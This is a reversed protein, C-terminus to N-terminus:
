DTMIFGAWYFPEPYRARIQNRAREFAERKNGRTEILHQYFAVMFERTVRDSVRWLTMVLTQVGAKKFARQLGYLGEATVQGQGTQCASLVVLDTGSLDLTAIDHGTLIGDQVGEPLTQGQWAANGGALVLGSLYMADQYGQLYSYLRAQQSPVYFGHTALHLVRPSRGSLSLFSEESGSAGEYVSVQCHDARLLGAIQRVEEGSEPLATFTSDGRLMSRVARSSPLPYKRSEAQMEEASLDYLLGGYLAATCAGEAPRSLRTLERASSLRVFRYHDGLLRGDGAPLSEPALCYVQGSPVYYVTEGESVYPRIQDWLLHLLQPAKEPGYLLDPPTDLSLSELQRITFLPLLLPYKRDKRILYVAYVKKQQLSMFDVFDVLVEGDKLCNKVQRYDWDLFSTYDAYAKSHVALEHDLKQMRTQWLALTDRSFNERRQLSTIRDQLASIEAFLRRDEPTGEEQLIQDLSKETELLLGKSLLLANYCAETLDSERADLLDAYAPSNWLRESQENWFSEREVPSVYRWQSRIYELLVQVSRTFSQIGAKRRGRMVEGQALKELAASYEVSREGSTNRAIDAGIRYAECAKEPQEMRSWVTGLLSQVNVRGADAEGYHATLLSDAKQLLGYAEQWEKMFMKNLARTTYVLVRERPEVKESEAVKELYRYCYESEECRGLGDYILGQRIWATYDDRKRLHLSERGYEEARVLNGAKLYLNCMKSFYASLLVDRSLSGGVSLSKKYYYNAMEYNKQAVMRDGWEYYMSQTFLSDARIDWEYARDAYASRDNRSRALFLQMRAIDTQLSQSSSQLALTQAETLLCAAEDTNESSIAIKALLSLLFIQQDQNETARYLKLAEQYCQAATEAKMGVYADWGEQLWAEAMKEQLLRLQKPTAYPQAQELIHRVEAYDTREARMLGSALRYGCNLALSGAKDKEQETLPLALLTKCMEWAERYRKLSKYCNVARIMSMIHIRWEGENALKRTNKEVVLYNVLARSTYLLSDDRVAALILERIKYPPLNGSSGSEELAKKELLFAYRQEINQITGLITSQWSTGGSATCGDYARTLCLYTSDVKSRQSYYVARTMALRAEADRIEWREEKVAYSYVQRLIDQLKKFDTSRRELEKQVYRLGANVYLDIIKFRDSASSPMLMLEDCIKWVEAEDTLTAAQEMKRHLDDASRQAYGTGAMLLCLLMWGFRRNMM